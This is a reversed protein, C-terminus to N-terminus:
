PRRILDGRYTTKRHPQIHVDFVLTEYGPKVVEIKHGGEELRLAQFTGDFDDVRGAYYGDVYVEADRPEVDIRLEGTDYDYAPAYVPGGGGYYGGYYGGNYYPYGYSPYGYSASVSWGYPNYYFYGLGFAGYGYPYYYRPYYYPYRYPYRYAYPYSHRYGGYYRGRTTYVGGGRHGGDGRWDGGGSGGRPVARGVAPNDGRPRGGRPQARGQEESAAAGANAEARTEPAGGEGLSRRGPASTAPPNNPANEARERPAARYTGRGSRESGSNEARPARV